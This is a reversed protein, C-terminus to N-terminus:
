RISTALTARVAWNGKEDRETTIALAYNTFKFAESRIVTDKVTVQRKTRYRSALTIYRVEM